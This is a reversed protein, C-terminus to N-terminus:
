YFWGMDSEVKIVVAVVSCISQDVQDYLENVQIVNSGNAATDVNSTTSNPTMMEDPALTLMFENFLPIDINMLVRTAYFSNTVQRAGNFDKIRAWQVVIIVPGHVRHSSGRIAGM